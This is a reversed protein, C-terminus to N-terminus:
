SSRTLYASQVKVFKSENSRTETTAGACQTQTVSLTDLHVAPLQQNLSQTLTSALRGSREMSERVVPHSDAEKSSDTRKMSAARVPRPPNQGDRGATLPPSPVGGAPKPNSLWAPVFDQMGHIEAGNSVTVGTM